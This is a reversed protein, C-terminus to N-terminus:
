QKLACTSTADGIPVVYPGEPILAIKESGHKELSEVIAQELSGVRKVATLLGDKVSLGTSYLQIQGRLQAKVLMQTQWQDIEAHSQRSIQQLFADPGLNILQQQSKAFEVSGLGESCESAIILDGGPCLINAASVMGKVTQYYTKDLPYGAACTVVTSFQDHVPIECFGRAFDVALRHSELIEGFNVFSLNRHEDIVTNIALVSGLMGVIELQEEHLPNGEFNCDRTAPDGMFRFSHFTTITEAHALGPAIIKRGGSYGAMFHPEVLGTVLKVDADVFRRDLKVVTGRTATSGLLVHEDDRRAYHNEICINELVWPDGILEALEQGENPRHLGTAVLVTIGERPIGCAIMREIVPKLFLRNPVPRTIDCIAICATKAAAFAVDSAIGVPQDLASSVAVSADHLVPMVPKRIVQVATGAPVRVPLVGRGYRLEFERDSKM